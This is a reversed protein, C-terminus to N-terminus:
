DCKSHVALCSQMFTSLGHGFHVNAMFCFYVAKISSIQSFSVETRFYCIDPNTGLPSRAYLLLQLIKTADIDKSSQLIDAM